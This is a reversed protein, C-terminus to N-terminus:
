SKWLDVPYFGFNKVPIKVKGSTLYQQSLAKLEIDFRNQAQAYSFVLFWLLIGFPWPPYSSARGSRFADVRQIWSFAKFHIKWHLSLSRSFDYIRNTEKRVLEFRIKKSSKTGFFDKLNTRPIQNKCPHFCNTKGRAVWLRGRSM